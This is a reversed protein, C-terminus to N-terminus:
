IPWQHNEMKWNLESSVTKIPLSDCFEEAAYLQLVSFKKTKLNLTLKIKLVRFPKQAASPKATKPGCDPFEDDSM